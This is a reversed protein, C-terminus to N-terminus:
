GSPPLQHLAPVSDTTARMAGLRRSRRILCSAGRAVRRPRDPGLGASRSRNARCHCSPLHRIRALGRPGHLLSEIHQQTRHRLRPAAIKHDAVAVQLARSQPAELAGSQNRSAKRQDFPPHHIRASDRRRRLVSDNSHWAWNRFQYGSSSRASVVKETVPNEENETRRLWPRAQTEPRPCVTPHLIQFPSLDPRMGLTASARHSWVLVDGRSTSRIPGMGRTTM